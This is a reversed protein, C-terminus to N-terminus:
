ESTGGVTIVPTKVINTNYSDGTEIEVWIRYTIVSQFVRTTNNMRGVERFDEIVKCFCSRSVGLSDLVTLNFFPTHKAMWSLQMELLDRQFLSFFNIQYTMNFPRARDELVATGATTDKSIVVQGHNDFREADFTTNILSIEQCPYDTDKYEREPIRVFANAPAYLTGAANKVKVHTNLESLLAREIEEKWVSGSM